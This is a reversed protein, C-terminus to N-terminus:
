SPDPEQGLAIAKRIQECRAEFPPELKERGHRPYTFVYLEGSRIARLTANAVTSPDLGTTVEMRGYPEDALPGFEAPRNRQAGVIRSNVYSPCLVSVGIGTGALESQLSESLSLVAAKSAGYIGGAGLAAVSATNLIHGEGGQGRMRPLFAEIGHVVGMLNVSFVWRWDGARKDTLSGMLLVGANNCRVHGEGFQECAADALAWVQDAEAVDTRVALSRVGLARAEAAVQEARDVEIDAVVVHMGEGAFACALAAGIGSGGGTVVAVKDVFTKM